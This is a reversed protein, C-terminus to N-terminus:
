GLGRLEGPEPVGAFAVGDVFLMPTTTAGAALAERVDRQVRAAVADGRRDTDFRDLDLGLARVHAWLHPDDVRGQDAYVADCFPWFAGQAAVAEAARALAVARPHKARLAFHRFAIRAGADVLREYALTCRPCTLDAYFIILTAGPDGRVHDDDRLPPPPASRLDTM